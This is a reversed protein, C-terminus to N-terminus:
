LAASPSPSIVNRLMLCGSWVFCAVFFWVLPLPALDRRFIVKKLPLLVSPCLLSSPRHGRATGGLLPRSSTLIRSGNPAFVSLLDHNEAGRRGGRVKVFHREFPPKYTSQLSFIHRWPFLPYDNCPFPGKRFGLSFLRAFLLPNFL